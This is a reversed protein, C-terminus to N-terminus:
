QIITQLSVEIGKGNTNPPAGNRRLPPAKFVPAKHAAPPAVEEVTEPSSEQYNEASTEPAKRLLNKLFGFMKVKTSHALASLYHTGIRVTRAEVPTCPLIVSTALLM